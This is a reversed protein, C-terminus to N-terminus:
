YLCPEELIKRMFLQDDGFLPNLTSFVMDVEVISMGITAIIIMFGM